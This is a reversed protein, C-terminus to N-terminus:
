AFLRVSALGITEPLRVPSGIGSRLPYRSRRGSCHVPPVMRSRLALLAVDSLVM